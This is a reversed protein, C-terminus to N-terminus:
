AAHGKLWVQGSEWGALCRRSLFAHVWMSFRTPDANSNASSDASELESDASELVLVGTSMYDDNLQEYDNAM